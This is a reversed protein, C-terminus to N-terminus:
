EEYVWGDNENAYRWYKNGWHKPPLKGYSYFYNRAHAQGRDYGQKFYHERVMNQLKLFGILTWILIMPTWTIVTFTSLKM